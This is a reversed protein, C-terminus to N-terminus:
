EDPLDARAAPPARFGWGKGGGFRWVILTVVTWFSLSGLDAATQGGTMMPPVVMTLWLLVSVGFLLMGTFGVILRLQSM